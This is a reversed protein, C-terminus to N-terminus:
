GTKKDLEEIVDDALMVVEDEKKQEFYQASCHECLPQYPYCPDGCELCVGSMPDRGITKKPMGSLLWTLVPM